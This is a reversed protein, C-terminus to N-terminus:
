VLRNCATEPPTATVVLGSPGNTKAILQLIYHREDVCLWAEQTVVKKETGGSLKQFAVDLM